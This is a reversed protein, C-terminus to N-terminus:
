AMQWKRRMNELLLVTDLLHCSELVLKVCAVGNAYLQELWLEHMIELTCKGHMDFCKESTFKLKGIGFCHFFLSSARVFYM